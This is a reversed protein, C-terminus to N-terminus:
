SSYSDEVRKAVDRYGYDNEYIQKFSEMAKESNGLKSHILGLEYLIEKKTGDMALLEANADELQKVALDNMGKADFTRGLLLLVKTRIHPNRTAQQLHPIAESFEKAEYLVQGLEYRFTPDTPNQEVRLRREQVQLAIRSEEMEELQARVEANDPDAELADQLAKVEATAARDKMANAKNKLAIDGSSLQHAWDFFQYASAWEELQEYLGALLKVVAADNPDAEYREVLGDRRLELQDKTLASRNSEELEAVEKDDKKGLVYEGTSTRQKQMSARATADKEGKVADSDNPDVKLIDTYVDAAEQPLDQAMYFHALKILLKKNEPAGRRVTELAFTATGVMNLKMGVEYLIENLSPSYPEKELEKEIAVLAAVPDKKALGQLKLGGLGGGGLLSKKRPGSLAIESQRLLRRGDLFGPAEKLIGQMLAVVYKHNQVDFATKAKKVLGLLNSPLEKESIESPQEAQNPEESM